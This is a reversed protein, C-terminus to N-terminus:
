LVKALVTCAISAFSFFYALGFFMFNRRGSIEKFVVIGWFNQVVTPMVTILPYSVVLLLASNAVFWSIQAAAWMTGSIFAPFTVEPYFVPKNRTSICYILFYLTSTLYLGSFHSFVYDLGNQSCTPCHDMIYQPPNFNTGYFLGAVLCMTIGLLRKQLDSLKDMWGKKKGTFEEDREQSTVDMIENVNSKLVPKILSFVIASVMALFAGSYSLWPYHGLPQKEVGLIGFAGVSWGVLLNATGWLVGGLGLGILKIIPVTMTNGTCWLFGGLMALPQFPPYQRVINVVFGCCFIASCLIWQFYMGNGTEFTKVPIYNSGFCFGAIVACIFGVLVPVPTDSTVM